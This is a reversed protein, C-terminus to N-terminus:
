AATEVAHDAAEAAEGQESGHRLPETAENLLTCLDQLKDRKRLQCPKTTQGDRLSTLYIEIRRIPGAVQHTVLIGVSLMLPLLLALALVANFTLVRPLANILLEGEAGLGVAVRQLTFRLMVAQVIVVASAAGLFVFSPKLQISADILRTKRQNTSM